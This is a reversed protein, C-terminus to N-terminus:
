FLTGAYFKSKYFNYYKPRVHVSQRPELVEREFYSIDNYWREPWTYCNLFHSQLTSNFIEVLTSRLERSGYFPKGKYMGSKPIKRDESEVPLLCTPNLNNEWCLDVYRSVLEQCSKEPNIQRPLHFRIDINGFYIIDGNKFWPDKLWGYLTKGDNKDLNYKPRWVSLSHSDGIVSNDYIKEEDFGVQNLVFKEVGLKRKEIFDNQNFQDYNVVLGRFNRLKELREFHSENLGGIVNYSGKKYNPGHMIVLEEYNDWNDKETLFHYDKFYLEQMIRNSGASHSNMSCAPNNLIGIIGKM